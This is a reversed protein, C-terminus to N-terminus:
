SNLRKQSVASMFAERLKKTMDELIEARVRLKKNREELEMALKEMQLEKLKRNMRSRKSAENNKDRLERYRLEHTSVSSSNDDISCISSVTSERRKPPRGRRTPKLQQSDELARIKDMIPINAKKRRYKRPTHEAYPTYTEDSEESNRRRKKGIYSKADDNDSEAHPETKPTIPEYDM